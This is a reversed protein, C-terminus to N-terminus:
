DLVFDKVVERNQGPLVRPVEGAHYWERPDFHEEWAVPYYSDPNAYCACFWMFWGVRSRWWPIQKFLIINIKLFNIFAKNYKEDEPDDSVPFFGSRAIDLAKWMVILNPDRMEAKLDEPNGHCNDLRDLLDGEIVADAFINLFDIQKTLEPDTKYKPM